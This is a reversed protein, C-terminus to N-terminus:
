SGTHGVTEEKAGILLNRMATNHAPRRYGLKRFRILNASLYCLKKSPAAM